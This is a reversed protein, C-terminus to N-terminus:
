QWSVKFEGVTNELITKVKRLSLEAEKSFEGSIANKDESFILQAKQESEKYRITINLKILKKHIFAGYYSWPKYHESNSWCHTDENVVINYNILELQRCIETFKTSVETSSLSFTATVSKVPVCGQILLSLLLAYVHKTLLVRSNSCKM